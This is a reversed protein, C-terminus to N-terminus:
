ILAIEDVSARKPSINTCKRTSLKEKHRKMFAKAWDDGPLNGTDKFKSIIKGQRSLYAKTIYRLDDHTLPFRWSSTKIVVDCLQSEEDTSLANQGGHQRLTTGSEKANVHLSLTGKPINYKVHAANLSIKKERRM